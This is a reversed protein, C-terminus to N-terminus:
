LEIALHERAWRPWRTGLDALFASAIEPAVLGEVTRKLAQDSAGQMAQAQTTTVQGFAIELRLHGLATVHTFMAARLMQYTRPELEHETAFGELWTDVDNHMAVIDSLRFGLDDCAVALLRAESPLQTLVSSSWLDVPRLMMRNVEQQQWWIVMAEGVVGLFLVAVLFRLFSPDRMWPRPKSM